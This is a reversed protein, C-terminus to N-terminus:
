QKGRIFREAERVDDASGMILPTTQHISEPQIDLIREHGTTAAGGANEVLFAMPNAEYMLRLKGDPNVKDGPYLFIGGYVLNRHFDAVMSGIYRSSYAKGTANKDTKLYEIYHRIGDDWGSSHGENTSYVKGRKPTQIDPHSLLFEGVSPDYTFGQVGLGASFVLMTSAGYLIYGAAVQESGKQLCDELSGREGKSIKKYISFITGISVNADINSSGDLPDYLLVYHGCPHKEPIPIVGEREESAMMCLRGTHNMTQYIISDAYEDLKRVEEGHVNTDGTFGLVDVLGAKNVERAIIKGALAIDYLLLSFDGTAKPFRKQADIIHREITVLRPM